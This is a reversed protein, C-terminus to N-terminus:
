KEGSLVGKNVFRYKARLIRKVSAEIETRPVGLLESWEHRTDAPALVIDAGARIAEAAGQGSAGGMSLADSVVLGRFGIRGRLLGEVVPASASAPTGTSDICPVALHGIMVASLGEGCYERFPLLDSEWLDNIEKKIVPLRKHSDERVSGHGPFHKACSLVGADELGRAYAVGLLSVRDADGSYTRFAMYGETESVDLVPGLIMNIGIESAELGVERGYDYMYNESVDGLRSNVPYVGADKLRMGLGWEADIAVLPPILCWASLSDCMIRADEESGKLFLIGGVHWQEAYQRLLAMNEPSATAYISPMLPIGAIEEPTMSAYVSDVWRNEDEVYDAVSVSGEVNDQSRIANRGGCGYLLASVVAILNLFMLRM